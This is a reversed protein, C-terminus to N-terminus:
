PLYSTHPGATCCIYGIVGMLILIIVFVAANKYAEIFEAKRPTRMGHLKSDAKVIADILKLTM